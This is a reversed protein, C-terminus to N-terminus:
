VDVHFKRKVDSRIQNWVAKLLTGKIKLKVKTMSGDKVKVKATIKNDHDYVLVAKFGGFPADAEPVKGLADMVDVMDVLELTHDSLGLEPGDYEFAYSFNRKPLIRLMRKFTKFAEMDTKFALSPNVIRTKRAKINDDFRIPDYHSLRTRFPGKTMDFFPAGAPAQEPFPPEKPM